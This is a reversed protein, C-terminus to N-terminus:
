RFRSLIAIINHLIDKIQRCILKNFNIDSKKVKVLIIKECYEVTLQWTPDIFTQLHEVFLQNFVINIRRLSILMRNVNDKYFKFLQLQGELNSIEEVKAMKM